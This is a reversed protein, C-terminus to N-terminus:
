GLLLMKSDLCCLIMVALLAYTWDGNSFCLTESFADGLSKLVVIDLMLFLYILTKSANTALYLMSFSLRLPAEIM